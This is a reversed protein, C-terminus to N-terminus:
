ATSVKELFISMAKHRKLAFKHGYTYRILRRSYALLLFKVLLERTASSGRWAAYANEYIM